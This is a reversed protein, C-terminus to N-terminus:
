SQDFSKLSVWGSSEGTECSAVSGIRPQRLAVVLYADQNSQNAANCFPDAVRKSFAVLHLKMSREDLFEVALTPHGQVSTVVCNITNNSSRRVEDCVAMLESMTPPTLEPRPKAYASNSAASACVTVAAVALLFLFLPSPIRM